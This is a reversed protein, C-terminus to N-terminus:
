KETRSKEIQMETLKWSHLKTYQTGDPISESSYLSIEQLTDVALESMKQHSDLINILEVKGRMSKIRALTIHPQYPLKDLSFGIPKLANEIQNHLDIFHKKGKAVGVWAVTPQQKNPFVGLGRIRLPFQQTNNTIKEISKIIKPIKESPVNGLFKITLHLNNQDVWAPHAKTFQMGTQLGKLLKTLARKQEDTLEAAIFLRSTDM